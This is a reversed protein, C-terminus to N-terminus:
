FHASAPKRKSLPQFFWRNTWRKWLNKFQQHAQSAWTSSIFGLERSECHHPASRGSTQRELLCRLHSLGGQASCLTSLQTVESECGQVRAGATRGWSMLSFALEGVADGTRMQIRTRTTGTVGELKRYRGTRTETVSQSVCGPLFGHSWKVSCSGGGRSESQKPREERMQLLSTSRGVQDSLSPM